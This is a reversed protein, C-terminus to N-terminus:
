NLNVKNFLNLVFEFQNMMVDKLRPEKGEPSYALSESNVLLIRPGEWM